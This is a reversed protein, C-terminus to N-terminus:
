CELYRCPVEQLGRGFSAADEVVLAGGAAAVWGDNPSKVPERAVAEVFPMGVVARMAVVPSM